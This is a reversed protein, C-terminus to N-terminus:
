PTDTFEWGVPTLPPNAHGEIHVEDLSPQLSCAQRHKFLTKLLNVSGKPNLLRGSVEHKPYPATVKIVAFTVIGSNLDCGQRDTSKMGNAKKGFDAM